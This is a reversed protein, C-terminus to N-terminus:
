DSAACDSEAVRWECRWFRRDAAACTGSAGLWGCCVPQQACDDAGRSQEVADPDARTYVVTNFANFLRLSAASGPRRRAPIQRSIAFDWFNLSCGRLLNAGSENGISNYGPGSYAETNFQKYPDSSCGSGPDGNLAIRALYNPSGTLNVNAGNAQYSYRADYPVGSGGTYVGSFQWDNVLVGLAKMGGSSSNVKPLEWVFNGKIM